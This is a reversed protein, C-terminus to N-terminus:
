CCWLPVVRHMRTHGRSFRLGFVVKPCCTRVPCEEGRLEALLKSATVDDVIPEPICHAVQARGCDACAFLGSGTADSTAWYRCKASVEAQGTAEVLPSLCDAQWWGFVTVRADRGSGASPRYRRALGYLRGSATVASVAASRAAHELSAHSKRPSPMALGPRGQTARREAGTPRLDGISVTCKKVM